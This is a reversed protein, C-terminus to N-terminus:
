EDGVDERITEEMLRVQMLLEGWGGDLMDVGGLGCTEVVYTDAHKWERAPLMGYVSVAIRKVFEDDDWNHFVRQGVKQLLESRLGVLGKKNWAKEVRTEKASLYDM